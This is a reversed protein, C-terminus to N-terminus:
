LIRQLFKLVIKELEFLQDDTYNSLIWQNIDLNVKQLYEDRFKSINKSFNRILNKFSKGELKINNILQEVLDKSDLKLNISKQYAFWMCWVTCFGNPDGIQSCTENELNEIMQFGVEPLYDKPKLYKFEIGFQQFKEYIFRDLLDPNYNFNIPPNKGNPEFRELIRKRFNWFLINTHAGQSTEIGIPIVIVEPDNKFIKVISSDFYDPYYIKQNNWLIMTNIFDRKFNMETGTKKYFNIIAENTTLTYDLVLNLKSNKNNLWLLGFLTDIPFGSFFCDKLIIGFNADFNIERIKPISRKEELITNRIKKICDNKNKLKPELKSEIKSRIFSCKKEWDLILNEKLNNYFSEEVIKLLENKNKSSNIVSKGEYNEIYINLLKLELENNFKSVQDKSDLLHLSTNGNFNQINLNSGKIFMNLIKDNFSSFESLYLNLPIFGSLNTLNLDIKNRELFLIILNTNKELISFHLVNNGLNDSIAINAGYKILKNILELDNNVVAQHLATSGYESTKNNLDIDTKEILYSTIEKNNYNISVQLLTEGDINRIKFNKFYKFLHLLIKTRKYKICYFFVNDGKKDIIYPDGGNKILLDIINQNNFIVCYHLSTRGKVDRKDLIHIGIKSEDSRLVLDLIEIRNFKVLNYLITTGNTDIIDLFIEKTLFYQILPIDESNLIYEVLYNGFEDKINLDLDPNKKLYNLIINYKKEKIKEFLNM